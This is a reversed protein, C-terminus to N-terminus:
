DPKNKLKVVIVGNKGDSGYKKIAEDGKFVSISEIDDPNIDGLGPTKKLGSKTDIFFIPQKGDETGSIRVAVKPSSTAVGTGSVSTVRDVSVARSRSVDRVIYSRNEDLIKIQEETLENKISVLNSLQKKKLQNELSLVTEMQKNVASQDIKSAELMKKLKTNEEELDWKLTSFQGANEAHIKKIKTAQSDTLKLKERMEMVQDASYLNGQFIDQSGAIQRTVGVSSTVQAHAFGALLIFVVIFTKKM